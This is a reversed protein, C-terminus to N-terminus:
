EHTLARVPDLRAARRAPLWAGLFTVLVLLAVVSGFTVPDTPSVGVLMSKLASSLPLALAVGAVIGLLARVMGERVIMRVVRTQEAGMAMRIGIEHVRRGTGYATVGYIGVAGLTLSVAAFALMLAAILRFPAVRTDILAQMPQVEFVPQDADVSWVARQAAEALALPDGSTRIALSRSRTAAQAVPLYISPEPARTPSRERMDAVIGVITWASDNVILTRGVPDTERFRQRALTENVLAVRATRANDSGTLARGRLVRVRMAELYGPSLYGMRAAYGNARPSLDGRVTFTNVNNSGRVPLSQITGAAQVGPLARVQELVRDYLQNLAAANAYKSEPPTMRLTLVHGADYGPDQRQMGVVSRMMVGGGVLLVVALGTQVVVLTGGFRRAKRGEGARGEDRLERGSASSARLAPLLGFLLTAALSAGLAFWLAAADVRFHFVPSVEAPMAAAIARVGAISLLVGVAGGALALVLSETLLQRLVRTRRAGLAVRVALERRRGNARALLLNAVNVCAMLLVFTVAVMLVLAAQRGVEGLLDSRVTVAYSTFGRNTEPFSAALAASVASVERSAQEVSVGPLLRAFVVHSHDSRRAEAPIERLATFLEPAGEPYVFNAPLVGIVTFPEGSLQIVRGALSADGGFRRQFFAWSLLAVGPAGPQMDSEAFDRGQAPQVRFVHLLDATVRMAELREPREVGSLNLSAREVVALSEFAHTRQKWDWADALSADTHTWGLDHNASWINVLRDGDAYPLPRLLLGYVMSFIATNAGIGLALTLVAMLAFLPQRTMSRLGLKVDTAISGMMSPRRRRRQARWSGSMDNSAEWAGGELLARRLRPRMRLVLGGRLCDYLLHAMTRVHTEGRARSLELMRTYADLLEDGGGERLARPYVRLALRLLRQTASM